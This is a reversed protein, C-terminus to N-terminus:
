TDRQGQSGRRWVSVGAREGEDVGVCREWTLHLVRQEEVYAGTHWAARAGFGEGSGCGRMAAVRVGAVTLRGRELSKERHLSPMPPSAGGKAGRVVQDVFATAAWSGMGGGGCEFEDAGAVVVVLYWREVLCLSILLSLLTSRFCPVRELPLWM